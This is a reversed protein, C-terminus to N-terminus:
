AGAGHLERHWLWDVIRELGRTLHGRYWAQVASEAAGM